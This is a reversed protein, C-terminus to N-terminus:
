VFSLANHGIVQATMFARDEKTIISTEAGWPRQCGTHTQPAASADSFCLSRKDTQRNGLLTTRATIVTRSDPNRSHFGCEGVEQSQIHKLILSSANVEAGEKQTKVQESADKIGNNDWPDLVCCDQWVSTKWKLRSQLYQPHRVAECGPPRPHKFAPPNTTKAESWPEASARHYTKNLTSSASARQPCLM